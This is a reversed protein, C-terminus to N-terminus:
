RKVNDKDLKAGKIEQKAKRNIPLSLAEIVKRIPIIMAMPEEINIKVM